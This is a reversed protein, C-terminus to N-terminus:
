RYEKAESKNLFEMEWDEMKEDKDWNVGSGKSRDDFGFYELIIKRPKPDAEYEIGEQTRKVLRGLIVVEKDDHLDPGLIARVKIEYWSEM